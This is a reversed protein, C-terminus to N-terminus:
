KTEMLEKINRKINKICIGIFIVISVEAVIGWYFLIQKAPNELDMFLYTMGATNAILATWLNNKFGNYYVLKEKIAEIKMFIIIVYVLILKFKPFGAFGSKGFDM